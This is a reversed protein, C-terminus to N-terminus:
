ADRAQTLWAGLGLAALAWVGAVGLGAWHGIPVSDAREVTRQIALGATMPAVQQVTDGVRGGAVLAVMMPVYLLGVMISVAVSGRRAAAGIGLSLLAIASLYLATGVVARFTSGDIDLAHGLAVSGRHGDVVQGEGHLSPLDGAYPPSLRLLGNPDTRFRLSFIHRCSGHFEEIRVPAEAEDCAFLAVVNEDVVRVDLALSM